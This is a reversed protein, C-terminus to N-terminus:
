GCRDPHNTALRVSPRTEDIGIEIWHDHHCRRASYNQQLVLDIIFAPYPRSDEEEWGTKEFNLGSKGSTYTKRWLRETEDPGRVSFCFGSNFILVFLFYFFFVSRDSIIM